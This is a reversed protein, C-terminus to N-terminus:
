VHFSWHLFALTPTGQSQHNFRRFFTSGCGEVPCLFPATNKRRSQSALETAPTTVHQREVPLISAANAGSRSPSYLGNPQALHPEVWDGEGGLIPAPSLLNSLSTPSASSRSPPVLSDDPAAINRLFENASVTNRHEWSTSPIDESFTGRRHGSRFVSGTARRLMMTGGGAQSGSLHHWPPSNCCCSCIRRVLLRSRLSLLLLPTSPVLDTLSSSTLRKRQSVLFNALSALMDVEHNGAVMLSSILFERSTGTTGRTGNQGM